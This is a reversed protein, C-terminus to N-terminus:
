SVPRIRARLSGARARIRRMLHDATVHEQHNAYLHFGIRIAVQDEPHDLRGPRIRIIVAPSLPHQHDPPYRHYRELVSSPDQRDHWAQAIGAGSLLTSESFGIRNGVYGYHINSWLDFPFLRNSVEDHSIRGFRTEIANKHDWPANYGVMRRFESLGEAYTFPNHIHRNIEIAQPSRINRHMEEIIYAAVESASHEQPQQAVSVPTTRPTSPIRTMSHLMLRGETNRRYLIQYVGNGHNLRISDLVPRLEEQVSSLQRSITGSRRSIQEESMQYGSTLREGNKTITIVVEASQSEDARIIASSLMELISDSSSGRDPEAAQCQVASTQALQQQGVHGLEHGL